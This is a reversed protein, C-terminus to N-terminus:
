FNLTSNSFPRLGEWLALCLSLCFSTLVQVAWCGKMRRPFAKSLSLLLFSGSSFTEARKRVEQSQLFETFFSSAATAVMKCHPQLFHFGTHQFHNLELPLQVSQQMALGFKSSSGELNGRFYVINKFNLSSTSPMTNMIGSFIRFAM